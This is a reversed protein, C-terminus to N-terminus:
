NAGRMAIMDDIKLISTTVETASLVAQRVLSSPEVVGLEKMDITDEGNLNPGHHLNGNQIQHRLSLICDLPDQGGNEAITAPLIELSDAFAEIAM